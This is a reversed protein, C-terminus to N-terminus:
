RARVVLTRAVKDHLGQHLPDWLISGYIAILAISGLCAPFAALLVVISPVIVVLYRVLSNAGM